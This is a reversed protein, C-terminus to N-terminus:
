GDQMAAKVKQALRKGEDTSLVQELVARLVTPDQKEAAKQLQERDISAALTAADDSAALRKVRELKGSQALQRSMNNPDMM